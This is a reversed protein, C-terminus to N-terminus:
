SPKQKGSKAVRTLARDMMRQQIDCLAVVEVDNRQLALGLHGQGRLGVGIFGLRLKSDRANGFLSPSPLLTLGAGAAATTKIFNRRTKM